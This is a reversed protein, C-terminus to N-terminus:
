VRHEPRLVTRAGAHWSQRWDKAPFIRELNDLQGIAELRRYILQWACPREPDAVECHDETSGGCPGNLMRKACRTVPCIGGFDSLVCDGCGLCKETWTAQEELIGLFQTNLAAYVPKTPFREAIAQVGAGCAFSLIAENREAAPAVEQIFENECQREITIQTLDLPQGEIKRAMRMAYSAIGVEREGGALCVTVCTGCGVFLVKGHRAILNKLETIPKPSAVIM